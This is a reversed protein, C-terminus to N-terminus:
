STNLRPPSGAARACAGKVTKALLLVAVYIPLIILVGSIFTTKTFEAFRKISL